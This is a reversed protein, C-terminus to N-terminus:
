RSCGQSVLGARRAVSLMNVISGLAGSVACSSCLEMFQPLNCHMNNNHKMSDKTLHVTNRTIVRGSGRQWDSSTLRVNYKRYDRAQKM